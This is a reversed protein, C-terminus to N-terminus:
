SAVGPGILNVDISLCMDIVATEWAKSWNSSRTRQRIVIDMVGFHDLVLLWLRGFCRVLLFYM